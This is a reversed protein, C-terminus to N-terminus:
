VWCLFGGTKAALMSSSLYAPGCLQPCLYGSGVPGRNLAQAMVGIGGAMMSMSVLFSAQETAGGIARVLMVPLILLISSNCAHQLGQLLTIWLPPKETVGYLISSPKKGNM